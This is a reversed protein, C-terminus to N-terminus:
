LIYDGEGDTKLSDPSYNPFLKGVLYFCLFAIVVVFAVDIVLISTSSYNM